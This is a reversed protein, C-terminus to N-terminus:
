FKALRRLLSQYKVIFESAVFEVGEYFDEVNYGHACDLELNERIVKIMGKDVEAGDPKNPIQIASYLTKDAVRFGLFSRKLKRTIRGNHEIQCGHIKLLQKLRKFTIIREGKIISRSHSIIWQAIQFIEKDSCSFKDDHAQHDVTSISLKFLEDESCTLSIGHKDLFILLSVISTRKNGNHFSHNNSIAYFLAAASSEITPYKFKGAYSTQAHFLASELLNEDKLGPPSIPDPSSQFDNVLEQHITLIDEKKLYSIKDIIKGMFSFNYEPLLKIQTTERSHIKKAQRNKKISLLHKALDMDKKRVISNVNKIYNFRVRRGDINDQYYWLRLLAEDQDVKFKKSLLLVSRKPIAM